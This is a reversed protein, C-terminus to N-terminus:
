SKKGKTAPKEAKEPKDAKADLLKALDEGTLRVGGVWLEGVKLAHDQFETSEGTVAM